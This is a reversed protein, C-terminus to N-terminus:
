KNLILITNESIRSLVYFKHVSDETAPMATGQKSKVKGIYTGALQSSSINVKNDQNANVM